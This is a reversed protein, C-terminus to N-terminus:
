ISDRKDYFVSLLKNGGSQFKFLIHKHQVKNKFLHHQILPNSWWLILINDNM